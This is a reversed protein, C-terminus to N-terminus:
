SLRKPVPVLYKLPCSTSPFILSPQHNWLSQGNVVQDWTSLCFIMTAPALLSSLEEGQHAPLLVTLESPDPVGWAALSKRGGTLGCKRLNRSAGMGAGGDASWASWAKGTPPCGVPHKSASPPKHATSICREEAWIM